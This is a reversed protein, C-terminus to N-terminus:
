QVLNLILLVQSKMAATAVMLPEAYDESLSLLAQRLAIENVQSTSNVDVLFKEPIDEDLANIELQSSKRKFRRFNERRLITLLWSKAASVDKLTDISQWARMYTDQVLDEAITHDKTLWYGYRYLDDSYNAVFEEFLKRRPQGCFVAMNSIPSVNKPVLPVGEVALLCCRFLGVTQGLFIYLVQVYSSIIARYM